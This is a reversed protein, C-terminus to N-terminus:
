TEEYKSVVHAVLNSRPAAAFVIQFRFELSFLDGIRRRDFYSFLLLMLRACLDSGIGCRCSTSVPLAAESSFRIEHFLKSKDFPRFVVDGFTLKWSNELSAATPKPCGPTGSFELKQVLITKHVFEGHLRGISRQPPNSVTTQHRYARLPSITVVPRKLQQWVYPVNQFASSM